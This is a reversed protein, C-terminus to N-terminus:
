SASSRIYSSLTFLFDPLYFNKYEPFIFSSLRRLRPSDKSKIPKDIIFVQRRPKVGVDVAQTKDAGAPAPEHGHLQIFSDSTM